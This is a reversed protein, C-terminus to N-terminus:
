RSEGSYEGNLSSPWDALAGPSTRNIGPVCATLTLAVYAWFLCHLVQGGSKLQLSSLSMVINEPRLFKPSSEIPLGHYGKHFM